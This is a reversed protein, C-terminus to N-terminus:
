NYTRLDSIQLFRQWVFDQGTCPTTDTAFTVISNTTEPIEITFETPSDPDVTLTQTASVTAGTLTIDVDRPGCPSALLTGRVTTSNSTDAPQRTIEFSSVPEKMWWWYSDLNTERPQTTLSDATVLSQTFFQATVDTAAVPATSTMSFFLWSADLGQAVPAGLEDTLYKELQAAKKESFARLDVHVACFGGGALIGLQARSPVEPMQASWIGASTNRPAGYSWKKNPNLLSVWYHDYDNFDNVPGFEPFTTLPLQLVGCNEPVAANVQIAYDQAAITIESGDQVSDAYASKFPLISDVATLGLIAIAAIVAIIPRTAFRTQRIVIAAGLVVLILLVPTLRNWARIQATVTGAVLYNLGWPIFFLTSVALLYAILGATLSHRKKSNVLPKRRRYLLLSGVFFTLIAASTIWTGYNSMATAESSGGARIAESVTRNYVDMGPLQSWPMPLLAVTLLGAFIVSEYPLRESLDALPPDNIVALVSPFFGIIAILLVGALPIVQLILQRWRDGQGFRWIIAAAGLILTFAAYYVGTWATVVVLIVLLVLKALASKRTDKNGLNAFVENLRGSGILLVIILGTILSYMTALYTHGLARGFHYPLFTIVLAGAVSMVFGIGTMRVLYYSVFATLPFSIIILLNIGVFPQGTLNTVLQAFSNQTIDISPFYNLNMGLPFGFQDSVRYRLGQWMEANVYTSLLDGGAWGVTVKNLLPGLVVLSLLFALFSTAAAWALDQSRRSKLLGSSGLAGSSDLHAQDKLTKSM